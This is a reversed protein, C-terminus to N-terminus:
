DVIQAHLERCFIADGCNMSILSSSSFAVQVGQSFSFCSCIDNKSVNIHVVGRFLPDGRFLPFVNEYSFSRIFHVVRRWIKQAEKKQHPLIQDKLYSIISKMLIPASEIWMVTDSVEISPKTPHEIPVVILLESNKSSALKALADAHINYSRPIQMLEFREFSPVFSMVVKLYAAMFKDRTSYNGHVLSVVLQSDCNIIVKKVQLEKALRLGALLAEYETSKFGFRVTCTLKHGEPSVLIIGAGSGTKGSSRDVFLRWIQPEIPKTEEENNPALTFEAVFDVLAQGKITTRSKYSIDFESLEVAWKLMRGSADPKQLVKKLPYNTIV